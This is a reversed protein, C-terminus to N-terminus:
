PSRHPSWCPASAATARGVVIVRQQVLHELVPDRHMGTVRELRALHPFDGVVRAEVLLARPLVEAAVHEVQAREGDGLLQMEADHVPQLADHAVIDVLELVDEGFDFGREDIAVEAVEREELRQGVAPGDVLEERDHRHVAEFSRGSRMPVSCSTM